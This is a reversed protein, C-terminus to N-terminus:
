HKEIFSADAKNSLQVFVPINTQMWNYYPLIEAFAQKSLEKELLEIWKNLQAAWYISSFGHNVYTNFVWLITETFVQADFKSIITAIFRAHNAHNDKMMRINNDGILKKLDERALMAANLAEVMNISRSKYEAAAKDSVQKLQRASTLLYNKDM